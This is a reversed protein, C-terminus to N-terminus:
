GERRIREAPLKSFRSRNRRSTIAATRLPAPLSITTPIRMEASSISPSPRCVPSVTSARSPSDLRVALQVIEIDDSRRRRGVGAPQVDDRVHDHRVGVQRGKLWCTFAATDSGTIIAPRKFWGEPPPFYGRRRAPRCPPRRGRGCRRGPTRASPGPPGAPRCGRRCRSCGPRYRGGGSPSQRDGADLVRFRPALQLVVLFGRTSTGFFTM